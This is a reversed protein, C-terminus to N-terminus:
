QPYWLCRLSIIDPHFEIVHRELIGHVQQGCVRCKFSSKMSPKKSHFKKKKHESHALNLELIALQLKDITRKIDELELSPSNKPSILAERPTYPQFTQWLSLNSDHREEIDERLSVQGM